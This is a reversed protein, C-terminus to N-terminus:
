GGYRAVIDGPKAFHQLREAAKRLVEDGMTHGFSDNILKLGNTDAIILSVPLYQEDQLRILARELYGRNYLNTLFDHDHQFQLREEAQKRETLDQALIAIDGTMPVVVLRLWIPRSISEGEYGIELTQSKGSLVVDQYMQFMKSNRHDPFLDLLHLGIVKEPDTGNLAAIAANEYVWTFDVINGQEGRVPRLITFGDPSMDQAIRFREYSERLANESQRLAKNLEIQEIRQLTMESILQTMNLLFDMVKTVHEKSVVPVESLAQLYSATDFGFHIAQDKFFQLDPKEFFFQGSFLNAVHEGQIIIPVAVDVLGNLCTYFHYQEHDKCNQALITDSQTCREGTLPNIRHFDTCIKRWGSKSLIKGNLDLIATVFGTSKNFGELLSNVREMDLYELSNRKM